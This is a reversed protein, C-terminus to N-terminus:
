LCKLVWKMVIVQCTLNNEVWNILLVTMKIIKDRLLLVDDLVNKITQQINENISWLLDKEKNEKSIFKKIINKQKRVGKRLNNKQKVFGSFIFHENM